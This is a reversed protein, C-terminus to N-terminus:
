QYGLSGFEKRTQLAQQMYVDLRNNMDLKYLVDQVQVNTAEPLGLLLNLNYNVVKRNNELEIQMLQINSKQLQFRLVDNRTALGQDEFKKIEKLKHEVDDLNQAVIKQNQQIKYFNIYANIINYIIEEKDKEADLKATQILLNASERAYRYQHGAFIPENVSLTTQYLTNDFPFRMTKADQGDSSPLAFNRSLMLAHSYGASVKASPLSQDKAQELKSVAQEIKNKSLVLQKSNQVGLRVAEDLSVIKSPENSSLISQANVSFVTGSFAIIMWAKTKLNM